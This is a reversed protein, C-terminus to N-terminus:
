GLFAGIEPNAKLVSLEQESPLQPRDRTANVMCLFGLPQHPDARFQHWTWRPIEILDYPQVTRVQDGLLCRGRGRLIM